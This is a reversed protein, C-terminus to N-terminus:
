AHQLYLQSIGGLRGVVGTHDEVQPSDVQLSVPSDRVGKTVGRERSSSSELRM